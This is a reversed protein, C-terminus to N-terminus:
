GNMRRKIAGRWTHSLVELGAKILGEVVLEKGGVVGIEEFPFSNSELVEKAKKANNPSVSIMIRSQSEGFLLAEKSLNKQSLKVKAGIEKGPDLICSEALAVALGGESCDHASKLLKKEALALM